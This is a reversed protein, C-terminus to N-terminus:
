TSCRHWLRSFRGCPPTWRRQRPTSIFTETGDPRHATTPSSARLFSRPLDTRAVRRRGSVLRGGHPSFVVRLACNAEKRWFPSRESTTLSRYLPVDIVVHRHGAGSIVDSKEVWKWTVLSGLASLAHYLDDPFRGFDLPAPSAIPDSKRIGWALLESLRM